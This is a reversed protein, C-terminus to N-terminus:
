PALEARWHRRAWRAAAAAWLLLALLGDFGVGMVEHVVIAAAGVFAAVIIRDLSYIATDAIGIVFLGGGFSIL